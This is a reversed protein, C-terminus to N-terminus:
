LPQLVVVLHFARPAAPVVVCLADLTWMGRRELEYVRAAGDGDVCGEACRDTLNLSLNMIEERKKCENRERCSVVVKVVGKRRSGDRSKHGVRIM